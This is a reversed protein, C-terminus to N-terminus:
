VAAFHDAGVERLPAERKFTSPDLEIRKPKLSPDTAPVASLLARTYPHQPQTFLRETVGMEVIKGLYM